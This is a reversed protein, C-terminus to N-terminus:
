DADADHLSQAEAALKWKQGERGWVAENGKITWRWSQQPYEIKLIPSESELSEVAWTGDFPELKKPIPQKAPVTAPDVDSKEDHTTESARFQVPDLAILTRGKYSTYRLDTPRDVNAGPDTLCLWLIKGLMGGREYLGLCKKGKHLGSLFTVDFQKPSKTPDMTFSLKIEEGDAITWTIENGSDAM